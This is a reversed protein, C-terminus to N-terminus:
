HVMDLGTVDLHFMVAFPLKVTLCFESIFALIQKELSLWVFLFRATKCLLLFFLPLMSTAHCDLGDM